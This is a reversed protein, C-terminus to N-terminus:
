TLSIFNVMWKLIVYRLPAMFRDSPVIKFIYYLPVFSVHKMNEVIELIYEKIIKSRPSFENNYNIFMSLKTMKYIYFISILYLLERFALAM